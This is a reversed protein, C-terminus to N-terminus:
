LKGSLLRLAADRASVNPCAAVINTELADGKYVIFKKNGVNAWCYTENGKKIKIKGPPPADIFSMADDVVGHAWKDDFSDNCGVIASGQSGIHKAYFNGVGNNGNGPIEFNIDCMYLTNIVIACFAEKNTAYMKPTRHLELLFKRAKEKM